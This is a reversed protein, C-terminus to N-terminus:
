LCGPFRGGFSGREDSWAGGELPLTLRSEFDGHRLTYEGPPASGLTCESIYVRCDDFCEGGVEVRTHSTVTLAEGERTVACESALLRSCGSSYCGGAWVRVTLEGMNDKQTLCLAGEDVYEDVDNCGIAVAIFNVLVVSARLCRVWRCPMTSCPSRGQDRCRHPPV